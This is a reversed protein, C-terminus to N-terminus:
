WRLQTSICWVNGSSNQRRKIAISSCKHHTQTSLLVTGQQLLTPIHKESNLDISVVFSLSGFQEESYAYLQSCDDDDNITFNWLDLGPQM